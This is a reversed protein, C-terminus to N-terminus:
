TRHRAHRKEEDPLLGRTGRSALFTGPARGGSSEFRRVIAATAAEANFLEVQRFVSSRSLGYEPFCISGETLVRDSVFPGGSESGHSARIDVVPWRVLLGTHHINEPM